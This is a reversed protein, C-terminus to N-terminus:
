VCGALVRLDPLLAPANINDIAVVDIARDEPTTVCVEIGRGRIAQHAPRRDPATTTINAYITGPNPIGGPPRFGAQIRQVQSVVIEGRIDDSTFAALRTQARLGPDTVEIGDAADLGLNVVGPDVFADFDGAFVPWRSLPGAFLVRLEGSSWTGSVTVKGVDQNPITIAGSQARTRDYIWVDVVGDVAGVNITFDAGANAVHGNAIADQESEGNLRYVIDQAAAQSGIVLAIACAERFLDFGRM